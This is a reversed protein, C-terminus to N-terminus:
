FSHQAKFWTEVVVSVDINFNVLDCTFKQLAHPKAL